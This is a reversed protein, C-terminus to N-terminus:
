RWGDDYVYESLQGIVLRVKARSSERGQVQMILDLDGEPGGIDAVQGPALSMARLLVGDQVALLTAAPGPGSYRVKAVAALELQLFLKSAADAAAEVARVVGVQGDGISGETTMVVLNHSAAPLGAIVTTGDPGLEVTSAEGRGDARMITVRAGAAPSGDVRLVVLEIRREQRLHLVIDRAGPRVAVAESQAQGFARARLTWLGEALPGLVFAGAEDSVAHQAGAPSECFGEISARAVPVGDPRVVRGTAYLGRQLVMDDLQVVMEAGIEVPLLVPAPDTRPSAAPPGIPAPGVFWLGQSVNAFAFEGRADTTVLERTTSDRSDAFVPALRSAPRLCMAVGAALTGDSELVRGRLSSGATTAIALERVEGPGLVLAERARWVVEGGVRAVVRLPVNPPLTQLMTRSAPQAVVTWAVTREGGVLTGRPQLLDVVLAEVAIEVNPPAFADLQLALSAAPELLIEVRRRGSAVMAGVDICALGHGPHDIRLLDVAYSRLNLEFGGDVSTRTECAEGGTARPRALVRAAVVPARTDSALVVGSIRLDPQTSVRVVVTRTEGAQLPSVDAHGGGVLAQDGHAIVILSRDAPVEFSARGDADTYAGAADGVQSRGADTWITLRVGSQSQDTERSVVRVECRAVQMGSEAQLSPIPLRDDHGALTGLVVVPMDSASERSVTGSPLEQEKQSVVSLTLGWALALIGVALLVHRLKLRM